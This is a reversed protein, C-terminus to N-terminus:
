KELFSFHSAMKSPRLEENKEIPLTITTMPPVKHHLIIFKGEINPEYNPMIKASFELALDYFLVYSTSIVIHYM